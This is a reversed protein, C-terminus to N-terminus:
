RRPVDIFTMTDLALYKGVKEIHLVPRIAAAVFVTAREDKLALFRGLAGEQSQHEEVTWSRADDDDPAEEAKWVVLFV